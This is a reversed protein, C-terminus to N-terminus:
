TRGISRIPNSLLDLAYIKHEFDEFSYYSSPHCKTNSKHINPGLPKCANCPILHGSYIADKGLETTALGWSLSLNLASNAKSKIEGTGVAMWVLTLCPSPSM